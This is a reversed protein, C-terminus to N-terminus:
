IANNSCKKNQQEKDFFLTIEAVNVGFKSMSTKNIVRHEDLQYMWDDMSVQYTKDDVVLSLEYKFQFAFGQHKGIAVGVVDSATGEYSGDPKKSLYWDRFSIEGDNFYFKEALLGENNQWTGVMEVCFRRSVKDAYNQVVGWAIVEGDFFTKIDFPEQREKKNSDQYTTKQYDDLDTSCSAILNCLIIVLLCYKFKSIQKNKV